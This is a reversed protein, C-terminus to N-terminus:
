AEDDGSLSYLVLKLLGVLVKMKIEMEIEESKMKREKKKKWLSGKFNRKRHSDRERRM